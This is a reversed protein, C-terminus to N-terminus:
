SVGAVFATRLAQEGAQIRSLLAKRDTHQLKAIESLKDGAGQAITEFPIGAALAAIAGHYRQTLVFSAGHLGDTLDDITRIDKIQIAPFASRCANCVAKELVNDPELSLIRVPRHPDRAMEERVRLLFTEDTNQRPILVLVNQSRDLIQHNMLTYVPDFSQIIEKHLNWSQMRAFSAADRVSIFAARRLVDRTVRESRSHRFPGIGQFAFYVPKRFFFAFRAHVSWVRCARTSEVDTFLSGGGFVIADTKRLARLTKLWKLSFFSRIGSPLRPLEGEAPHASVVQWEVEPFARLFYEKLAEDGFNGIGYNGILLARM